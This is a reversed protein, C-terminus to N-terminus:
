PVVLTDGCSTPLPSTITGSYVACESASIGNYSVTVKKEGTACPLEEAVIGISCKGQTSSGPVNLLGSTYSVSNGGIGDSIIAASAIVNAIEAAIAREQSRIAAEGQREVVSNTVGILLSAAVLAFMIAFILDLSLQGRM